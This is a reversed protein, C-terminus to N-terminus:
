YNWWRCDKSGELEEPWRQGNRCRDHCEVCRSSGASGGPTSQLRTGLCESLHAQCDHMPPIGARKNSHGNHFVDEMSTCGLVLAGVAVVLVIYRM